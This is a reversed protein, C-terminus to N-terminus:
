GGIGPTGNRRPGASLLQELMATAEDDTLLEETPHDGTPAPWHDADRYPRYEGSAAKEPADMWRGGNLWTAAHPVFQAEKDAMAAAHRRAGALIDDASASRRAKLFARHAALKGVKRPYAEWFNVFERELNVNAQQAKAKSRTDRASAPLHDAEVSPLSLPLQGPPQDVYGGGTPPSTPELPPPELPPEQAVTPPYSVDGTAPLEDPMPPTADPSVALNAPQGELLLRYWNSWRGGGSGGRATKVVLGRQALWALQRQVTRVGQETDRALREQSPFCFGDEDAYNALALLVAKPGPGGARQAIAWNM